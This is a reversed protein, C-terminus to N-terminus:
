KQHPFSLHLRSCTSDLLVMGTGLDLFMGAHGDHIDLSGRLNGYARPSSELGHHERFIEEVYNMVPGWKRPWVIPATKWEAAYDLKLSIRERWDPFKYISEYLPEDNSEQANHIHTHSGELPADQTNCVIPAGKLLHVIAGEEQARIGLETMALATAEYSCNLGGLDEYFERYMLPSNFIYWDEPLYESAIGEGNPGRHFSIKFYEDIYTKEGESYKYIVVNKPNEEVDYLADIATELGGPTCLGDDSIWTILEGEALSAGICHARVPSGFDKIIKM